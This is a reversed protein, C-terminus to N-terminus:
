PKAIEATQASFNSTLSIKQGRKGRFERERNLEELREFLPRMDWLNTENRDAQSRRFIRKLLGKEELQCAIARARRKDVGLREALVTLGPFPAAGANGKLSHYTTLNLLFLAEQPTINLDPYLEFFLHAIGTWGKRLLTPGWIHAARYNKRKYPSEDPTM